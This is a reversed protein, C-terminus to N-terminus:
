MHARRRRGSQARSAQGARCREEGYSSLEWTGRRRVLSLQKVRDAVPTGSTAVTARSGAIREEVSSYFLQVQDRKLVTEQTPLCRALLAQCGASSKMAVRLGRQAGASLIACASAYDGSAIANVYTQAIAAPSPPPTGCGAAGAALGLVLVLTRRGLVTSM